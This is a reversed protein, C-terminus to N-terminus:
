CRPPPRKSGCRSGSRTPVRGTQVSPRATALVSSSSLRETTGVRKLDVHVVGGTDLKARHARIAAECSAIFQSRTAYAIHM